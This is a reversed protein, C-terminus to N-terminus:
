APGIGLITWENSEHSWMVAKGQCSAWDIESLKAYAALPVDATLMLTTGAADTLQIWGDDAVLSGRRAAKLNRVLGVLAEWSADGAKKGFADMFSRLFAALPVGVGVLIMWFAGNGTQPDKRWAPRVEVDIGFTRLVAGVAEVEAPTADEDLLVSHVEMM